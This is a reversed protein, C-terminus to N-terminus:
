SWTSKVLFSQWSRAGEVEVQSGSIQDAVSCNEEWFSPSQLGRSSIMSKILFIGLPNRLGANEWFRRIVVTEPTCQWMQRLNWVKRSLLVAQSSLRQLRQLM